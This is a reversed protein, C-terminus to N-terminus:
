LACGGSDAPLLFSGARQLITARLQQRAKTNFTRIMVEDPATEDASVTANAKALCRSLRLEELVLEKSRTESPTQEDFWTQYAKALALSAKTTPSTAGYSQAIGTEVDDRIGNANADAGKLESDIPPPTATAQGAAAAGNGQGCGAAASLILAAGAFRAAMLARVIHMM